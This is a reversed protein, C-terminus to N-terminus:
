AIDSIANYAEDAYDGASALADIYAEMEEGREGNQLSEPLSDHAEQEEDRVEELIGRAQDLLEAAEAIRKRRAKNM